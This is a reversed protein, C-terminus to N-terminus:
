LSVQLLLKEEKFPKKIEKARFELKIETIYFNWFEFHFFLGGMEFNFIRIGNKKKKM